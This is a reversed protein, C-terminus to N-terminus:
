PSIWIGSILGSRGLSRSTEGAVMPITTTSTAPNTAASPTSRLTLSWPARATTAAVAVVVREAGVVLAAAAGEVDLDDVDFAVAGLEVMGAALALEATLEGASAAEAAFVVAAPVFVAAPDLALGLV